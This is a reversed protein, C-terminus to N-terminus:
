QLLHITQPRGPIRGCQGTSYSTPPCASSIPPRWPPWSELHQPFRFFGLPLFPDESVLSQQKSLNLYCIILYIFDSDRQLLQCYSQWDWHEYGWESHFNQLFVSVYVLLNESRKQLNACPPFNQAATLHRKQGLSFSPWLLNLIHSLTASIISTPISPSNPHSCQGEPIHILRYIRSHGNPRQLFFYFFHNLM